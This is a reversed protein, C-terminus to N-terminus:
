LWLNVCSCSAEGCRDLAERDRLAEARVEEVRAVLSEHEAKVQDMPPHALRLTSILCISFAM